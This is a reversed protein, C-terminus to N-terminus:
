ENAVPHVISVGEAYDQLRPLLRSTRFNFKKRIIPCCDGFGGADGVAM